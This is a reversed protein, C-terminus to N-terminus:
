FSTPYPYPKNDEDVLGPVKQPKGHPNKRLATLPNIPCVALELTHEIDDCGRGKAVCQLCIDFDDDACTCCDAELNPSSSHSKHNVYPFLDGRYKEWLGGM